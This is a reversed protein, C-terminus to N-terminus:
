ESLTTQRKPDIQSIQESAGVRNEAPLVETQAGADGPEDLSAMEPKSSHSSTIDATMHRKYGPPVSKFAKQLEERRRQEPTKNEDEKSKKDKAPEAIEKWVDYMRDTALEQGRNQVEFLDRVPMKVNATTFISEGRLRAVEKSHKSRPSWAFSGGHSGHNSVVVNAFNEYARVWSLSDYLDVDQNFAALFLHLIEGRFSRWPAPDLLDSCIGVTFDGWQPHLFRFWRSGPLITFEKSGKSLFKALGFEMTAPRPKRFRFERVISFSDKDKKRPKRAQRGDTKIEHRTTSMPIVLSAENVFYQRSKASLSIHPTVAPELKRWMLGTFIAIGTDRVIEKITSLEQHPLALEPLIVLDAKSDGTNLTALLQSMANDVERRSLYPFRKLWKQWDPQATMQGIRIHLDDLLNYNAPRLGHPSPARAEDPDTWHPSITRLHELDETIDLRIDVREHAFDLTSIPPILASRIEGLLIDIHESVPLAFFPLSLQPGGTFRAWDEEMFRMIRELETWIPLPLHIRGRLAWRDKFEQTGFGNAFVKNLFGEHGDLATFLHLVHVWYHYKLNSYEVDYLARPLLLLPHPSLDWLDQEAPFNGAEIENLASIYTTAGLQHSRGQSLFPFSGEDNVHFHWIPPATAGKSKKQASKLAEQFYYLAVRTPLGIAPISAPQPPGFTNRETDPFSWLLSHLTITSNIARGPRGINLSLLLQRAIQYTTLAYLKTYNPKKGEIQEILSPLQGEHNIM